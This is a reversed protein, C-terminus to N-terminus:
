KLKYILNVTTLQDTKKQGETPDANHRVTHGIGLALRKTMAVQLSLDNQTLTNDSGAEMLLNNVVLTNSTIQQRYILGAKGVADDTADGEIRDILAGTEDRVLLQPQLKRYGGGLSGSLQVQATNVFDYGIGTSFTAQYAFAGFRDQEYRSSGYVFPKGDFKFEGQYNTEWREAAPQDSSRGYLVRTALNHRWNPYSGAFEVKLNGTETKANGRAIVLGFEGQGTWHACATTSLAILSLFLLRPLTILTTM